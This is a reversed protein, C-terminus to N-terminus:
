DQKEQVQWEEDVEEVALGATPATSEKEPQHRGGGRQDRGGGRRSRAGGVVTTESGDNEGGRGYRYVYLCLKLLLLPLIEAIPVFAPAVSAIRSVFPMAYYNLM